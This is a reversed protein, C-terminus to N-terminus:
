EHNTLFLILVMSFFVAILVGVIRYAWVGFAWWAKWQWADQYRKDPYEKTKGAKGPLFNMTKEYLWNVIRQAFVAVLVGVIIFFICVAITPFANM